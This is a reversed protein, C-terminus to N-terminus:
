GECLFKQCAEAGDAIDNIMDEHEDTYVTDTCRDQFISGRRSSNTGSMRMM